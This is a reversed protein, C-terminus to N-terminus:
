KSGTCLVGAPTVPKRKRCRKLHVMVTQYHSSAQIRAMWGTGSWILAATITSIAQESRMNAGVTPLHPATPHRRSGMTFTGDGNSFAVVTQNSNASVHNYILDQMGNGNVDGMMVKVPAPIPLGLNQANLFNFTGPTSQTAECSRINYETTETVSAISGDGLNRFTYSMPAASSLPANNTFYQSWDGSRIMALTAEADGGISTIKIKSEQLISQQKASLNAEVSGGISNYGAQMTARIDSESATSTISFMMM